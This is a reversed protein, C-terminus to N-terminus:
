GGLCQILPIMKCKIYVIRKKKQIQCARLKLKMQKYMGKITKQVTTQDDSQADDYVQMFHFM